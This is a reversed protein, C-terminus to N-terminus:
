WFGRQLLSGSAYEKLSFETSVQHRTQIPILTFNLDIQTPVYTKGQYIKTYAAIEGSDLARPSNEEAGATVGAGKMRGESASQGIITPRMTAFEQEFSEIVPQGAPIYDVDNPLIFNFMTLVCPHNNFQYEGLGNLFLMPPPMGRYKDQGYFMKTCSRLFHIAALMYNAEATDQATFKSTFTIDRVASGKYFYGRYNSHTLEYNSYDAVHQITINPTYPFILGNTARLPFLIGANPEDNYLLGNNDALSLRVRWDGSKEVHQQQPVRTSQVQADTQSVNTNAESVLPIINGDDDLTFNELDDPVNEPVPPERLADFEAESQAVRADGEERLDTLLENANADAQAAAPSVAPDVPPAFTSEDPRAELENAEALLRDMVVQNAAAEAKIADKESLSMGPVISALLERQTLIISKIQSILEDIRQKEALTPM